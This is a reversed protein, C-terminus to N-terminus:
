EFGKRVYPDKSCERVHTVSTLSLAKSKTFVYRWTLHTVSSSIDEILQAFKYCLTLHTVSNPISEKISKNFYHGFELYIVSNPIMGKVSQNFHDGFTLHTVSDPIKPVCQNFIGVFNLYVVSISIKIRSFIHCESNYTNKRLTLHTINQLNPSLMVDGHTCDQCCIMLLKKCNKPIKEDICYTRVSEFNNYFPLNHIYKEFIRDKFLLMCKFPNTCSSIATLNIKDKNNLYNCIQSFIDYQYMKLIDRTVNTTATFLENKKFWDNM